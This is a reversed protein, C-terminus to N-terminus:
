NKIRRYVLYMYPNEKGQWLIPNEVKLELQNLNAKQEKELWGSTM